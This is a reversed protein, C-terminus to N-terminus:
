VGSSTDVARHTLKVRTPLMWGEGMPATCTPNWSNFAMTLMASNVTLSAAAIPLAV